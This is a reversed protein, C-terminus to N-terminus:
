GPGPNSPIPQSATTPTGLIINAPAGPGVTFQQADVALGDQDTITVTVPTSDTAVLPTVTLSAGSVALGLITGNDSGSASFTDGAPPPVVNGSADTTLIPFTYVLDNSLAFVQNAVVVGEKTRVTPFGLRIAVPRHRRRHQEHTYLVVFLALWGVAALLALGEM